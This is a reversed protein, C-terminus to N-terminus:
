DAATNATLYADRRKNLVELLYGCHCIYNGFGAYAHFIFRTDTNARHVADVFANHLLVTGAVIHQEDIRVLTDVTAQALRLARYGGNICVAIDGLILLNVYLDVGVEELLKRM